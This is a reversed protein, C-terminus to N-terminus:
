SIEGLPVASAILQTPTTWREARWRAFISATCTVLLRILHM